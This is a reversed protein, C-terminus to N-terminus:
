SVEERARQIRVEAIRIWEERLVRFLDQADIPDKGLEGAQIRLDALIEDVIKVALERVPM